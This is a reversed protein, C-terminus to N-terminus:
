PSHVLTVQLIQNELTATTMQRLTRAEPLFFIYHPVPASM